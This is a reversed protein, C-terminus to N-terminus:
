GFKIKSVAKIRSPTNPSKFTTDTTGRSYTLRINKCDANWSHLRVNKDIKDRIKSVTIKNVCGFYM